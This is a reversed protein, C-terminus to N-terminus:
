HLLLPLLHDLHPASIKGRFGTIFVITLCATGRFGMPTWPPASIWWYGASPVGCWLLHIGLSPQSGTSLGASSCAGPLVQPGTSLPPWQLLTAPLVQSGTPSGRQFLRNRFSRVGHFPDVSPCNTFLQLRHSPSVSPFNTSFQRKHYPSWVPVAPSSYLSDEGQPPLLLLPLM